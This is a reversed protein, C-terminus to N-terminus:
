SRFFVTAMANEVQGCERLVPGKGDGGTVVGLSRVMIMVQLHQQVVMNSDELLFEIRREIKWHMKLPTRLAVADSGGNSSRVPVTHNVTRCDKFKQYGDTGRSGFSFDVKGLPAGAGKSLPCEYVTGDPSALSFSCPVQGESDAPGRDAIVEYPGDRGSTFGTEELSMLRNQAPTKVGLPFHTPIGNAGYQVHCPEQGPPAAYLVASVQFAYTSTVNLLVTVGTLTVIRSRRYRDSIYPAVKPDQPPLALTVPVGFYSYKSEEVGAYAFPVHPYGRLIVNNKVGRELADLKRQVVALAKNNGSRAKRGAFPRKKYRTSGKAKGYRSSRGGYNGSRYGKSMAM